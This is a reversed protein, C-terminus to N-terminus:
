VGHMPIIKQSLDIVRYLKSIVNGLTACIVSASYLILGYISWSLCAWSKIPGPKSGSSSSVAPSPKDKRPPAPLRAYHGWPSPASERFQPIRGDGPPLHDEWWCSELHGKPWSVRIGGFHRKQASFSCTQGGESRGPGTRGSLPISSESRRPGGHKLINEVWKM